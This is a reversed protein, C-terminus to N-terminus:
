PETVTGPARWRGVAVDGSEVSLAEPKPHAGFWAAYRRALPAATLGHLLVSLGVTVFITALVLGEHPLEGTEEVLLVAFVISALGRPGFWGVFAVTPWRAGTGLMALAVPLMRVVTLSLLAYVLVAPTIGGLAPELLTAGFVVFTAAGLLGGVEEVLYGVEGGIRRRLGGFVLGGVFAAVFGSGGAADASTYALVAGAVPVVQLWTPLVLGRQVSVRVVAGAAAGGVVGFLVGYGIAEAVLTVARHDGILGAEASALAVAIAFLPVCLGDNLGSEMNLGQRIRSPITPLTVVAQGLAADTPALVIALVLAEPWTLSGFALLAVGLGAAITLPLGIGLLRAPIGYEGRLARLDIRAADGFLLIALTAEALLKVTEGTTHLEVIGLVDVGVLLGAATFIMAGTVPTGALPGSM